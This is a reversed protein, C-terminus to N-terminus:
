VCARISVRIVRMVMHVVKLLWECPTGTRILCCVTTCVEEYVDEPPLDSVDFPSGSIPTAYFLASAPVVSPPITDSRWLM